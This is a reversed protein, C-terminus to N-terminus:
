RLCCVMQNFKESRFPSRPTLQTETEIVKSIQTSRPPSNVTVSRKFDAFEVEVRRLREFESDKAKLLSTLNDKESNLRSILAGLNRVKEEM